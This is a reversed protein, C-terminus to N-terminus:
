PYNIGSIVAELLEGSGRPSIYKVLGIGHAFWLTSKGDYIGPTSDDLTRYSTEVKVCNEFEGAPTVITEIATIEFEVMIRLHTNVSDARIEAGTYLLTDGILNSWPSVPLPPEYSVSPLAGPKRVISRLTTASGTKLFDRWELINGASDFYTVTFLNGINGTVESRSLVGDYSCSNGEDLPLYQSYDIRTQREVREICGSILAAFLMIILVVSTKAQSM